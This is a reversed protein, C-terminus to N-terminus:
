LLLQDVRALLENRWAVTGDEVTLVDLSLLFQRVERLRDPQRQLRPLADRIAALAMQPTDVTM